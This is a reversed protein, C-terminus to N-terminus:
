IDNVARSSNRRLKIETHRERIFVTVHRFFLFAPFSRVRNNEMDGVWVCVRSWWSSRTHCLVCVANFLLPLRVSTTLLQVPLILSFLTSAHLTARAVHVTPMSPQSHPPLSRQLLVLDLSPSDFPVYRTVPGVIGSCFLTYIRYLDSRLGFAEPRFLLKKRCGCRSRLLGDRRYLHYYTM